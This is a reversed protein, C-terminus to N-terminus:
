HTLVWGIFAALLSGFLTIIIPLLVELRRIREDLNRVSVSSGALGSLTEVPINEMGGLRITTCKLEDNETLENFMIMFVQDKYRLPVDKPGANFVSFMLRGYFGPDVHFGSINVLGKQKHTLRVSIFGLLDPPVFLYEYTMLIGFEGPEISLVDKDTLSLKKPVRETTVYVNEGLRLDYNAGRFSGYEADDVLFPLVYKGYSKLKDANEQNSLQQEISKRIESIKQEQFVDKVIVEIASRRALVVNPELALAKLYERWAVKDEEPFSKLIISLMKELKGTGESSLIKDKKIRNYLLIEGLLFRKQLEIKSLIGVSCGGRVLSVRLNATNM